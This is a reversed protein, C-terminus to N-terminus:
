PGPVHNGLHRALLRSYIDYGGGPGYGVVVTVTKGRYFDAVTQANAAGACLTFCLATIGYKAMKARADNKM